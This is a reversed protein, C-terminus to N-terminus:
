RPYVGAEAPADSVPDNRWTTLRNEGSNISWTYGGGTESVLFGFDVNAIVNVWPAPTNEGSKLYTVYEHGDASFGGLGNDFQLDTPRALLPTVNKIEEVNAMAAFTPLRMPRELLDNVQQALTGKDGDLVVRAATQLLIRDAENVQDEYLVFLGGRQNLYASSDMRAILRQIFNQVPQGYNTAQQNLIVLDVVLGRRRWYIHAQLLDQLLEGEAEDRIRALLIPYDGSIGFAWM